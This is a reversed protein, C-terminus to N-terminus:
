GRVAQVAKVAASLSSALDKAVPALPTSVAGVLVSLLFLRDLIYGLLSFSNHHDASYILGGGIVALVVAIAAALAKSVNRYAQDAREFGADLAMDAAADLRGLVNLDTPTLPTGDQLHITAVRLATADVRGADALEEATAPTLGLRIIAKAVAKQDGSPAGNIWHARLVQEWGQGAGVRLAPAFPRAARLLSDFGANSVGGWFAKTVDVLGAAAVGLASAAALVNAINALDGNLLDGGQVM